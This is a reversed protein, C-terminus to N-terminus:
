RNMRDRSVEYRCDHGLRGGLRCSTACPSRRNSSRHPPRIVASPPSAPAQAPPAPVRSSSRLRHCGAECSTDNARKSTLGRNEPSQRPLRLTRRESRPSRRRGHSRARRPPSTGRRARRSRPARSRRRAPSQSSSGRPRLSADRALLHRARVRRAATPPRPSARTRPAIRGRRQARRARRRPTAPAVVAPAQRRAAADRYTTGGLLCADRELANEFGCLRRPPMRCPSSLSASRSAARPTPLRDRPSASRPCGRFRACIPPGAARSRAEQELPSPPIQVRSAGKLV